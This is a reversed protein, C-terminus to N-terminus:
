LRYEADTESTEDAVPLPISLALGHGNPKAAETTTEPEDTDAGEPIHASLATLVEGCSYSSGREARVRTLRFTQLFRGIKVAKARKGADDDKLKAFSSAWAESNNLEELLDAPTFRDNGQRRVAQRLTITRAVQWDDAQIARKSTTFIKVVTLLEAEIEAGAVRSHILLPGWLESERDSIAPWYGADPEKEYLEALQGQFQLSYAELTHRLPKADRELVRVRMSKRTDNKPCRTMHIVICRSLLAGTLGGIVSFVKPCFVNFRRVHHDEGEIRAVSGGRKYGEHAIARLGEARENRGELTEAEDILFTPRCENVLRFLVAETLATSIEGRACVANLLRLVTSKGCEPVASEVSLYPCTDFLEFTWTLLVFFSLLLAAGAPLFAREAFFTELTRIVTAPKVAIKLLSAVRAREQIEARDQLLLNRHHAVRTTVDAKSITGRLVKAARTVLLNRADADDVIALSGYLSKVEEPTVGPFAAEVAEIATTAEAQAADPLL